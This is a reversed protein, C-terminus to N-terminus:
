KEGKQLDEYIEKALRFGIGYEKQISAIGQIRRKLVEGLINEKNSIDKKLTSKRKM